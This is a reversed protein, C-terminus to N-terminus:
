LPTKKLGILYDALETNYPIEVINAEPINQNYLLGKYELLTKMNSHYLKNLKFFSLRTIAENGYYFSLDNLLQIIVEIHPQCKNKDNLNLSSVCKKYREFVKLTKFFCGWTKESGIYRCLAYYMYNKPTLAIDWFKPKNEMREM